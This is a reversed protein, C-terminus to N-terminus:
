AMLIKGKQQLVSFTDPGMERRTAPKQAITGTYYLTTRQADCHTDTVAVSSYEHLLVM